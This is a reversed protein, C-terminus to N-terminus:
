YRRAPRVATNYRKCAKRREERKREVRDCIAEIIGIIVCVAVLVIAGWFGVYLMFDFDAAKDIMLYM